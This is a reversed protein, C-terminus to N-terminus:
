WRWMAGATVAAGDGPNFVAQSAAPSAPNAISTTAAYTKNFLNRGEIFVSLGDGADYGARAGFLLSPDAELTGAFDVPWGNQYEATPGMYWNGYELLMEGRWSQSPLGPLQRDGWTADDDFHFHGYTWTQNFMVRIEDHTPGGFVRANVGAEIGQHITRDANQTVTLGPALQYALYENRVHARYVAVDWAVRDVKGRTGVEGTWATQQELDQQTRTTGSLDRQIYEAFSPTESSHSVNTFVQLESSPHWLAGIKPNFGKWIQSGSQDGASPAVLLRDDNQLETWQAQLGGIAWWDQQVEHRWEGYSALTRAVQFADSTISGSTNGIADAYGYTRAATGSYGAEIGVLLRNRKGLFDHDDIIRATSVWDTSDQEILGFGLPHFLEKKMYALSIDGRRQDWETALRDAVRVLPYDRKSDRLVSSANAQRPDSEMQDKTISGALQSDSRSYAIFTRNEVDDAILWGLNGQAFINDQRSHDRYGDQHAISVGYWGDVNGQASGASVSLKRHDFSGGELRVMGGPATRGTPSVIDIAGGLMAGGYSLANAGRWVSVHDALAFDTAQFDGGGDGLSIPQGDALLRIGRLHFTRQIGSGRISLRSEESGQRPQVYVGPSMALADRWTATRGRRIDDGSIVDTGGAVQSLEQEAETATTTTLSERDATVTVAPLIVPTVEEAVLSYPVTLATAYAVCMFSRSM